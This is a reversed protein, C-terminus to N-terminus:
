TSARWSAETIPHGVAKGLGRTPCGHDVDVGSQLSRAIFRGDKLTRSLFAIPAGGHRLIGPEANRGREALFAIHRGPDSAARTRTSLSLPHTLTSFSVITTSAPVTTSGSPASACTSPEASQPRLM